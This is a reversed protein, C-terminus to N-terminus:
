ARHKDLPPREHSYRGEQHKAAAPCHDRRRGQCPATECKRAAM